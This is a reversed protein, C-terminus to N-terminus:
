FPAESIVLKMYSTKSYVVFLGSAKALEMLQLFDEPTGRLILAFSKYSKKNTADNTQEM